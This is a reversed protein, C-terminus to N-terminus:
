SEAVEASMAAILADNDAPTGITVRLRRAMRGGAAHFSRVLVGRALLGEYV